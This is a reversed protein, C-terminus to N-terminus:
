SEPKVEATEVNVADLLEERQKDHSQWWMRSARGQSLGGSTSPGATSGQGQPIHTPQINVTTWEREQSPLSPRLERSLGGSTAPGATSRQYQPIHTPQIDISLWDIEQSPM